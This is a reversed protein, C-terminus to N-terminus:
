EYVVMNKGSKKAIYLREDAVKILDARGKGGDSIFSALGISITIHGEPVEDSFRFVHKEVEARVKEAGNVAGEKTAKTFIVVFEEGGYRCVIDRTFITESIISATDRLVIDGTKHGYTDNIQKFNDIDVIAIAFDLFLNDTVNFTLTNMLREIEIAYYENFFRRNYVGTLGDINVLVKLERNLDEIEQNKEKLESYASDLRQNNNELTEIYQKHETLDKFLLIIGIYSKKHSIPTFEILFYKKVGEIQCSKEISIRRNETSANEILEKIKRSELGLFEFQTSIEKQKELTLYGNFMADISKNFDLLIYNRSLVLYGDSILDVIQRIAIPVIDLFKYKLISFGLIIMSGALSIPTTFVNSEIVGTISLFNTVIPIFTAAVMLTSQKSFLGSNRISYLLFFLFGILLYLYVYTNHVLMYPGRLLEDNILSYRQFMLHHSDNTLCLLVSTLPLIFLFLFEKRFRKEPNCFFYGSLLLFPPTFSRGITDIYLGFPMFRPFAYELITGFEYFLCSTVSLIFAFHLSQKEKIRIAMLLIFITFVTSLATLYFGIRIGM